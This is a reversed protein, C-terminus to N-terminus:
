QLIRTMHLRHHGRSSPTYLGSNGGLDMNVLSGRCSSNRILNRAFKVHINLFIYLVFIGLNFGNELLQFPTEDKTLYILQSLAMHGTCEMWWPAGHSTKQSM